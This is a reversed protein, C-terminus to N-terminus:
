LSALYADMKVFSSELGARAEPSMLMPPVNTQHTVTETRGDGLDNFVISTTMGGEVDAETFTLKRPPDFDVFVGRMPYEEGTEDNVMLTEFRGGPRPEVTIGELPTSTGAPGWFHTLHAPTTMCEFVLEPRAGFIRTITLEGLEAAADNM